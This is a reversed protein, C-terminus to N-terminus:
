DRRRALPLSVLRPLASVHPIGRVNEIMIVSTYRLYLGCREEGQVPDVQVWEEM